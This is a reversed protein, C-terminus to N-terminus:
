CMLIHLLKKHRNETDMQINKQELLVKMPNASKENTAHHSPGNNGIKRVNVYIHELFYKVLKSLGGIAVAHLM